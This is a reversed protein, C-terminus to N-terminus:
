DIRLLIKDNNLSNHYYETEDLIFATSSTTPNGGMILLVMVANNNCNLNIRFPGVVTECSQIHIMYAVGGCFSTRLTKTLISYLYLQIAYLFTISEYFYNDRSIGLAHVAYSNSITKPFWKFWAERLLDSRNVAWLYQRIM